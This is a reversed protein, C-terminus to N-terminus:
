RCRAHFHGRLWAADRLSVRRELAHLMGNRDLRRLDPRASYHAGSRANGRCFLFGHALWRVRVTGCGGCPRFFAVHIPQDASATVGHHAAKGFTFILACLLAVACVKAATLVVQVASGQKVGLYQIFSVLSDRGHGANSAPMVWASSIDRM